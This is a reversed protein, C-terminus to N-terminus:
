PSPACSRTAMSDDIAIIRDQERIDVGSKVLMTYDGVVVERNIDGDYRERNGWVFCPLSDHVTQESTEPHGFINTGGSEVDRVVDARMPLRLGRRPM